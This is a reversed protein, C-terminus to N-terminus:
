AKCKEMKWQPKQNREGKSKSEVTEMTERKGNEMTVKRNHSQFKRGNPNARM